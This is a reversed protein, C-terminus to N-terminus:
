QTHVEGSVPAPAGGGPGSGWGTGIQSDGQDPGPPDPHIGQHAYTDDPDTDPGDGGDLRGARIEEETELAGRILDREGVARRWKGKAPQALLGRNRWAGRRASAWARRRHPAVAANSAATTVLGPSLHVKVLAQLHEDGIESLLAQLDDPAEIPESVVLRLPASDAAAVKAGRAETKQLEATKARARAEYVLLKQEETCFELLHDPCDLWRDAYHPLAAATSEELEPALHATKVAAEALMQDTVQPTYLLTTANSGSQQFYFTGTPLTTTDLRNWGKLIQQSDAPKATRGAYRRPLHPLLDPDLSSQSLYQSALEMGIGLARGQQGIRKAADIPRANAAKRGLLMSVEDGIVLIAPRNKNLPLVQNDEPRLLRGRLPIAAAADELIRTAAEWNTAIPRDLRPMLAAYTLGDNKLDICWLLVDGCHVRMWAELRLLNSKASGSEGGYIGRTSGHGPVYHAVYVDVDDDNKGIWAVELMSTPIKPPAFKVVRAAITREQWILLVRASSSHAPDQIIERVSGAPWHMGSAIETRTAPKDLKERTVNVPLRLPVEVRGTGSVTPRGVVVVGVFGLEALVVPLTQAIVRVRLRLRRWQRADANSGWVIALALVGVAWTAYSVLHLVGVATATIIWLGAAGMTAAGARASVPLVNTRSLYLFSLAVAAATLTANIWWPIGVLQAVAAYPYLGCASWWPIHFDRHRWMRRAEWLGLTRLWRWILHYFVLKALFRLFRAIPDPKSEQVPQPVAAAQGPPLAAPRKGFM